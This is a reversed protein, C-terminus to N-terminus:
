FNVSFAQIQIGYNATIRPGIVMFAQGYMRILVSLTTFFIFIKKSFRVRGSFVITPKSHREDKYFQLFIKNGCAIATLRRLNM